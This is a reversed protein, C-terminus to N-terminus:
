RQSSPPTLGKLRLYTVLNGYHEWDHTANMTLWYLKTNNGFLSVTAGAAADNIAYARECFTGADKIAQVIAAKTKASQEVADEARGPEGLVAACFMFESGAVHGFQEAFSRVSPTPKFTYLSEPLQEASRLVYNHGNRWLERVTSVAIGDAARTAPTAARQQALASGSVLVLLVLTTRM